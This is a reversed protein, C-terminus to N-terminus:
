LTSLRQNLPLLHFRPPKFRKFYSHRTPTKGNLQKLAPLIDITPGTRDMEARDLGATDQPTTGAASQELLRALGIRQQSVPKAVKLVRHWDPLTFALQAHASAFRASFAIRTSLLCDPTLLLLDPTLLPLDPALLPL